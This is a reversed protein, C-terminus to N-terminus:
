RQMQTEMEVQISAIAGQIKSADSPNSRLYIDLLKEAEQKRDLHLYAIALLRYAKLYHPDLKLLKEFCAAAEQYGETKRLINGLTYYYEAKKPELNIAERMESAAEDYKGEPALCQGLSRHLYELSFRDPTLQIAQRFVEEVLDVREL